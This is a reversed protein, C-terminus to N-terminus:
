LIPKRQIDPVLHPDVALNCLVAEPGCAQEVKELPVADKQALFFKSEEDRVAGIEGIVDVDIPFHQISSVLSLPAVHDAALNDTVIAIPFLTFAGVEPSVVKHFAIRDQITNDDRSIVDENGNACLASFYAVM